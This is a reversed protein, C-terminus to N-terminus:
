APTMLWAWRRPHMLILDAAAYRAGNVKGIGNHIASVLSAGCFQAPEMGVAAYRARDGLALLFEFNPSPGVTGNVVRPSAGTGATAWPGPALPVLLAVCSLTVLGRM